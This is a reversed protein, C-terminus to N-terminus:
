LGQNLYEYTKISLYAIALIVVLSRIIKRKSDKLLQSYPIRNWQNHMKETFGAKDEEEEKLYVPKFNFQKPKRQGFFAM